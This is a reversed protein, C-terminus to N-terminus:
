DVLQRYVRFLQEAATKWGFLPVRQRGAQQLRRRTSPDGLAQILAATIAATQQADILLAAETEGRLQDGTVEPLSSNRATVVPTGCAFAELIPLGFGEYLSPYALVNALNYLAPLDNDDVFDLVQVMSQIQLHEIAQFIPEYLWGRQGALVLKPHGLQARREAPIAAFAEVLRQVNKRPSITSVFLIFNAPLQYRQRVAECEAAPLERFRSSVGPYLVTIREPAVQLLRELDAQTAQSDALIHDARRVSYPVATNLYRVLNPVFLEPFLKFSLDHVTLLTRARTPPLAFDPAHVLDVRGTFLELLVPLRLRQWLQALRRESLPIPHLTVHPYTQRLRQLEALRPHDNALGAAAYALKIRFGHDHALPLAATVLERTYRGIGGGQWLASTYDIAIRTM